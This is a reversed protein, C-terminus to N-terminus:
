KRYEPREVFTLTVDRQRKGGGRGRVTVLEQFEVGLIPCVELVTCCTLSNLLALAHLM